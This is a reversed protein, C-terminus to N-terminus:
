LVRNIGHFKINNSSFIYVIICYYGVSYSSIQVLIKKLWGFQWYPNGRYYIDFRLNFVGM